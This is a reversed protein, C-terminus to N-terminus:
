TPTLIDGISSCFGTFEAILSYDEPDATRAYAACTAIAGDFFTPVWSKSSYCLCPAQSAPTFSDFGPSVSECFEIAIVVSACAAQAEGAGQPIRKLLNAKAPLVIAQLLLVLSVCSSAFKFM